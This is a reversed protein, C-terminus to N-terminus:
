MGAASARSTMEAQSGAQHQGPKINANHHFVNDPDYVAKIRALKDYKESGHAARVRDEGFEDLANVYGEGGSGIAHPRLADWLNRAWSREAALVTSDPTMAGIFVGFRPSRGGSFATDLEGVQSYAGDLRFFKV